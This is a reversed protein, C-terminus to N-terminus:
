QVKPHTASWVVSAAMQGATGCPCEDTEPESLGLPSLLNFAFSTVCKWAIPNLWAWNYIAGVASPATPLLAVVASGGYWAVPAWPSAVTSANRGAQQIAAQWPALGLFESVNLYIIFPSLSSWEGTRSITVSVLGSLIDGGCFGFDCPLGMGGSMPFGSNGM